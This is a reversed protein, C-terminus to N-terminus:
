YSINSLNPLFHSGSVIKIFIIYHTERVIRQSVHMNLVLALNQSMKAGNRTQSEDINIKSWFSSM